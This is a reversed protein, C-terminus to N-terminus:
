FKTGVLLSFGSAKEDAIKGSVWDYRLQLNVAPTFNYGVIFPMGFKTKSDEGTEKCFYAGVGAGYFFKADASAGLFNLTLPIEQFKVGSKKKETYGVEVQSTWGKLQSPVEYGLRVTLWSKGIEDRLDKDQPRFVGAALSWPKATEAAFSACVSVIVLTLVILGIVKSKFM